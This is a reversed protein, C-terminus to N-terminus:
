EDLAARLALREEDDPNGLYSIAGKSPPGLTTSATSFAAKAPGGTYPVFMVAAVHGCSHAECFM